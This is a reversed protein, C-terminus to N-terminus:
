MPLLWVRIKSPFSTVGRPYVSHFAQQQKGASRLAATKGLFKRFIPLHRGADCRCVARLQQGRLDANQRAAEVLRLDLGKQALFIKVDQDIGRMGIRLRDRPIQLRGGRVSRHRVQAEGPRLARQGRIGTYQFGGFFGGSGQSFRLARDEQCGADFLKRCKRGRARVATRAPKASM